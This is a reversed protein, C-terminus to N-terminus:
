KWIRIKASTGPELTITECSVLCIASILAYIVFSLCHVVLLKFAKCTLVYNQIASRSSRGPLNFVATISFYGETFVMNRKSSMSGLWFDAPLSFTTPYPHHCFSWAQSATKENIDDTSTLWLQLPNKNWINLFNATELLISNELLCKGSLILM